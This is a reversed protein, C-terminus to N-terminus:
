PAPEWHAADSSGGDKVALLTLQYYIACGECQYATSNASLEALLSTGEWYGSDCGPGDCPPIYRYSAWLQYKEEVNSNDNWTLDVNGTADDLTGVLNTPGAPPTTCATNSPPADGGANFAVVRYCVRQESERGADSFQVTNGLASAVSWITGGDLTREIRFGDENTSNDIWRIDVRSSTYPNAVVGSAANPPPPPPPPPPALTTACAANSFGSYATKNGTLRVARIRYCYQKGSELGKDSFATADVALTARLDFSGTEGASSRHVELATENSSNDQWSADIQTESKASAAANSPTAVQLGVALGAFAGAGPELSRTSDCGLVLVALSPAILFVRALSQM